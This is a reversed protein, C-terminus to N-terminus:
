GNNERKGEPKGESKGESIEDSQGDRNEPEVSVIVQAHRIVKDKYLYGAQIEQLITNAPFDKSEQQILADHLMVDFNTGTTEMKNIGQERLIKIFKEYILQIGQAFVKKDTSENSHQLSRELDDIIPLIRVVIQEGSYKLINMLDQDTRRKYNDFEAVKRIFRDKLGDRESELLKIQEDKQKLEKTLRLVEDEQENIQVNAKIKEAESTKDPETHEIKLQANDTEKSTIKIESM